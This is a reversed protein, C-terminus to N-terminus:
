FVPTPDGDAAVGETEAEAPVEPEPHDKLLKQFRPDHRIEDFQPMAEIDDYAQAADLTLFREVHGLAREFAFDSAYLAALNLHAFYNNVDLSVAKLWYKRAKVFDGLSAYCLGMHNYADIDGVNHQVVQKFLSLAKVYDGRDYHLKAMGAQSESDDEDLQLATDLAGEILLDGYEQILLAMNRHASALSPDQTIATLHSQLAPLYQGLKTLVLGLNDHPVAWAADVNIAHEFCDAALGFDLRDAAELGQTNWDPATATM